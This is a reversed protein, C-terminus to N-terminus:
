VTSSCGSNEEDQGKPADAACSLLVAENLEECQSGADFMPKKPLCDSITQTNIPIIVRHNIIKTLFGRKIEGNVM